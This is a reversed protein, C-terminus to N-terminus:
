DAEVSNLLWPQALWDVHTRQLDSLINDDFVLSALDHLELLAFGALV